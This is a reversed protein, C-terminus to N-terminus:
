QGREAGSPFVPAPQTRLWAEMGGDLDALDALGAPELLSAAIMSRYGSACHLVVRRDRPVEAARSRLQDLPLHLSGPIRSSAREGPGRVDVVVPPRPGALEAALQRAQVRATRRLLEPRPALAGPGGQLFGAVQDFGIRGLRMAAEVERGPEAILVIPRERELVTGAWSAYRGGLGISVSGPLHGAAYAAPERVDLLQAGRAQRALVEDLTLPRLEQHLSRELTPRERRNLEAAFAFYPPASPLDSSARRVFEERSMPQLMGNGRRQQGLTSFTEPGLNKGCASGAGHAPYVLTSDPLRLLKQHLSDYLQGALESASAGSAVMLDPRGVDGVFLTDGTLVAQPVEPSRELDYVLLCISEPTHGPTELVDIRLKGFQLHAGEALPSFEYEAQAAAGLHIIAGTRARLELHGAVFDAHFHTLIVHRIHLGLARAKDVYVDVDRQPDVVVGTGTEEDGLLYSAHSLCGLYIQQLIM